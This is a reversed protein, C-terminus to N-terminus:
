PRTTPVSNVNLEIAAHAQRSWIAPTSLGVRRVTSGNLSAIVPIDLAESARHLTESIAPCAPTMTRGARPFLQQGGGPQELRAGHLLAYVMDEARIQEEFLSAMVVASSAPTRLGACAM